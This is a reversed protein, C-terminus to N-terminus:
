SYQELATDLLREVESLAAMADCEAEVQQHFAWQHDALLCGKSQYHRSGSEYYNSDHVEFTFAETLPIQFGINPM